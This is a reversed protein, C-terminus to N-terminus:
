GPQRLNTIFGRNGTEQKILEDFDDESVMIGSCLFLAYLYYSQLSWERRLDEIMQDRRTKTQIYKEGEYQMIGVKRKLDKCAKITDRTEHELDNVDMDNINRIWIPLEDAIHSPNKKAQYYLEALKKLVNEPVDQTATM